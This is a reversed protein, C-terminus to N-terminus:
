SIAATLSATRPFLRRIRLPLNILSFALLLLPTPCQARSRHLQHLIMIKIPLRRFPFTTWTLPFTLSPTVLSSSNGPLPKDQLGEPSALIQLIFSLCRTGYTGGARLPPFTLAHLLMSARWTRSRIKTFHRRPQTTFISNCKHRAAVRRPLRLSFLRFIRLIPRLGPTSTSVPSATICGTLRLPLSIPLPRFSFFKTTSSDFSLACPEILYIDPPWRSRCLDVLVFEM